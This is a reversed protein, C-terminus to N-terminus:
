GSTDTDRGVTPILVEKGDINVSISRVTSVTGDPNKVRPQAVLDINGQEIAQASPAAAVPRPGIFPVKAKPTPLIAAGLKGWNSEEMQPLVIKPSLDGATARQEVEAANEQRIGELADKL